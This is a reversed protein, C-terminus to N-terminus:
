NMAKLTAVSIVLAGLRTTEVIVFITLIGDEYKRYPSEIIERISWFCIGAGIEAAILCTTMYINSLMMCKSKMWMAYSGLLSSVIWCSCMIMTTLFLTDRVQTIPNLKGIVALLIAWVTVIANFIILTKKCFKKYISKNQSSMGERIRGEIFNTIQLEKDKKKYNKINKIYGTINICTFVM